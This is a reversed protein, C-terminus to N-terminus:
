WYPYPLGNVIPGTLWFTKNAHIFAVSLEERLDLPTKRRAVLGAEARCAGIFSLVLWNDLEDKHSIHSRRSIFEDIPVDEIRIGTRDVTALEPEFISSLAKRHSAKNAYRHKTSRLVPIPFLLAQRRVRSRELALRGLEAGPIVVDASHVSNRGHCTFGKPM